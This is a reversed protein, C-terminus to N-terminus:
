VKAIEKDRKGEDIQDIKNLAVIMKECTIEGIVLCQLPYVCVYKICPELIITYVDSGSYDNLVTTSLLLSQCSFVHCGVKIHRWLM